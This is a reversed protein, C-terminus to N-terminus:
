LGAQYFEKGPVLRRILWLSLLKLAFDAVPKAEDVRTEAIRRHLVLGNYDVALQVRSFACAVGSVGMWAGVTPGSRWFPRLAWSALMWAAFTRLEDPAPVM